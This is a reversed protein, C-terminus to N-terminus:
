PQGESNTAFLPQHQAVAENLAFREVDRAAAATDLAAEFESPGLHISICPLVVFFLVLLAYVALPPLRAIM